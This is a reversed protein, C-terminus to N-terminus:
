SDICFITYYYIFNWSFDINDVWLIGLIMDLQEVLESSISVDDALEGPDVEVHGDMDINPHISGHEQDRYDTDIVVPGDVYGIHRFTQLISKTSITAFAAQIWRYTDNHEHTPFKNSNPNHISPYKDKCWSHHLNWIEAKFPYNVSIDVPQLVCTYGAPVYDV